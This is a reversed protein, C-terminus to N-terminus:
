PTGFSLRGQTFLPLLGDASNWCRLGLGTYLGASGCEQWETNRAMLLGADACGTPMPYRGPMRGVLSEGSRLTIRVHPWVIEVPHTPAAIELTAIDQQPIQKYSDGKIFEVVGALRLDGDILWDCTSGSTSVPIAPLADLVATAATEAAASNGTAIAARAAQLEPAWAPPIGVWEGGIEGSLVRGRTREASILQSVTTCFLATAPSLQLLANAQTEARDWDCELCLIQIFLARAEASRPATRIEQAAQKHLAELKGAAFLEQTTM